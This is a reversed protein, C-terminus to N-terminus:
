IQSQIAHKSRHFRAEPEMWSQSQITGELKLALIGHGALPAASAQSCSCAALLALSSPLQSSLLKHKQLLLCPFFVSISTITLCSTPSLDATHIATPPQQIYPEARPMPRSSFAGSVGNTGGIRCSNVRFLDLPRFPLRRIVRRRM